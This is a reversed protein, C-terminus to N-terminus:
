TRKQKSHLRYDRAQFVLLVKFRCNVAVNVQESAELIVIIELSTTFGNICHNCHETLFGTRSSSGDPETAAESMQQRAAMSRSLRNWLATWRSPGLHSQYGAGWREEREVFEVSELGHCKVGAQIRSRFLEWSDFHWSTKPYNRKFPSYRFRSPQCDSVAGGGSEFILIIRGAGSLLLALWPSNSLQLTQQVPIRPVSRSGCIKALHFLGRSFHFFPTSEGMSRVEIAGLVCLLKTSSGLDALLFTGSAHSWLKLLAPSLMYTFSIAKISSTVPCVVNRRM